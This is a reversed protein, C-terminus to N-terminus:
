FDFDLRLGVNRPSELLGPRVSYEVNFLNKALVTAKLHPTLSYRVRLDVLTFDRHTMRFDTLGPIFLDFIKDVAVMRSTHQVSLGVTWDTWTSEVDLKGLHRSRYKLINFDVSSGDRDVKTFDQFRPDVYTYGMIVNVNGGLLSGQGSLSLDFGKIRTDGINQSQFGLILGTLVFEMMDQYESWYAAADAFAQFSGIKFGQRLGVEATWGTESRVLPNASVRLPGFVTSIYREAITPYRYGQGWSARM